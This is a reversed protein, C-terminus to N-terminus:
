IMETLQLTDVFEMLLKHYYDSCYEIDANQSWQSLGRGILDPCFIQYSHALSEALCNFDRGNRTLGHLCIM